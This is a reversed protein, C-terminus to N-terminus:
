VKIPTGYCMVADGHSMPGPNLAPVTPTPPTRENSLGCTPLALLVLPWFWGTKLRHLSSTLLDRM